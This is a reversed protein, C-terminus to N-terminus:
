WKLRYFVAGNAPNVPIAVSNTVVSGAVDVWNTGLGSSLSNTQAQLTWGIHDTPWSLTLNGGAYSNTLVPSNTNVMAVAVVAITGNLALNNTWYVNTGPLVPLTVTTFSGSMPKSFLAFTDGAM